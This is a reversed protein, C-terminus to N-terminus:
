AVALSKPDAGWGCGHRRMRRVGEFECVYEPSAINIIRWYGLEVPMHQGFIPVGAADGTV